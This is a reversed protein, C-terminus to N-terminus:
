INKSFKPLKNEKIKIDNFTLWNMKHISSDIPIMKLDQFNKIIVEKKIIKISNYVYKSLEKFHNAVFKM